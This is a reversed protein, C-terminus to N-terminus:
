SRASDTVVEVKSEDFDRVVLGRVAVTTTHLSSLQKVESGIKTGLGAPRESSSPTSRASTPLSGYVVRYVVVVVVVVVVVLVVVAMVVVVVVVVVVVTETM